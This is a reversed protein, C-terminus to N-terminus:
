NPIKRTNMRFDVADTRPAISRIAFNSKAAASTQMWKSTKTDIVIGSSDLWEVKYEFRKTEHAKNYGSVQLEMFGDKNTGTIVRNIEIGEGILASFAQGIPRVIINSELTDSRIGEQVNVRTDHPQYCSMASFVIVTLLTYLTFRM